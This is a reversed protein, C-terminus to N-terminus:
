ALSGVLIGLVCTANAAVNFEEKYLKNAWLNCFLTTAVASCPFLLGKEFPLAYKTALMLLVTSSFNALGGLSGYYLCSTPPLRKEKLFSFFQVLFATGFLGPMFWVDDSQSLAFRSLFHDKDACDFLICRGQILSLAMIQVLICGIAYKIWTGSIQDDKGPKDKKTGLYLGYFVLGIGVIQGYTWTFGFEKGFLAFLLLGPFVSSTNQFAFTLGSPGTQLAKATLIMLAVNFLGVFCGISFMTLNFPQVWIKPYLVISMSFSFLYFVMLYATSNDREGKGVSNKRFFLNSFASCGAAMTSFILGTM